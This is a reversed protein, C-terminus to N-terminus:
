LDQGIGAYCIGKNGVLRWYTIATPRAQVRSGDGWYQGRGM